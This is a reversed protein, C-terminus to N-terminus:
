QRLVEHAEALLNEMSHHALNTEGQALAMGSLLGAIYKDEDDVDPNDRAADIRDQNFAIWEEIFEHKETPTLKSTIQFYNYKGKNSM